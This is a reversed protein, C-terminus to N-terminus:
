ADVTALGMLDEGRRMAEVLRAMFAHYYIREGGRRLPWLTNLHYKIPQPVKSWCQACMPM